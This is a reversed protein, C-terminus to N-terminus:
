MFRRDMVLSTEKAELRGLSAWRELGAPIHGHEMEEVLKRKRNQDNKCNEHQKCGKVGHGMHHFLDDHQFVTLEVPRDVDKVEQKMQGWQQQKSELPPQGM